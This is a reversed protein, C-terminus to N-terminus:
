EPEVVLKLGRAEKVRVAKGMDVSEHGSALEAQWLEGRVRVYGSPALRDVAVGRSGVMPHVPRSDYSRWVFPFLVVDKLFWGVILGWYLWTPLGLKRDVFVLILLFLITGPIQVLAYKIVIRATWGSRNKETKLIM